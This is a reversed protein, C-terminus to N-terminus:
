TRLVLFFLCLLKEFYVKFEIKTQLEKCTSKMDALTNFYETKLRQIEEQKEQQVTSFRKSKMQLEHRLM